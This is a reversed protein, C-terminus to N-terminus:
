ILIKAKHSRDFNFTMGYFSMNTSPRIKVIGGNTEWTSGTYASPLAYMVGKPSTGRFYITQLYIAGISGGIDIFVDLEANISSPVALFYIMVDLNDGNRGTIKGSQYFYDIDDPIQSDIINGSNNPLVVTSGASVNFPTGSTYETDVYSAWGTSSMSSLSSTLGTNHRLFSKFTTETYSIGIDNTYSSISSRPISGTKNTLVTKILYTQSVDNYNFDADVIPFDIVRSGQELVIFNGERYLRNAM